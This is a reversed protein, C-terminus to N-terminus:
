NSRVGKQAVDEALSVQTPASPIALFIFHRGFQTHSYTVDAFVIESQSATERVAACKESTALNSHTAVEVVKNAKLESMTHPSVLLMLKTVM